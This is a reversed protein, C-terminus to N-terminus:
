GVAIGFAFSLLLVVLVFATILVYIWDREIFFAIVSVAVRMVPIAILILLGLAILAYPRLDAIGAVVDNISNPYEPTGPQYQIISHLEDLRVSQYGTSGTLLVLSIGLAVIAFSIGVGWRLLHAIFLEMHVSRDPDIEPKTM